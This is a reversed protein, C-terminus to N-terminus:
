SVRSFTGNTLSGTPNNFNSCNMANFLSKGESVAWANDDYPADIKPVTIAPGPQLASVLLATSTPTATPPNEQFRRNERECSVLLFASLIVPSWHRYGSRIRQDTLARTRWRGESRLSM